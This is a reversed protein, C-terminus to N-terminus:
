WLETSSLINGAVKHFVFAAATNVIQWQENAALCIWDAVGRKQKCMWKLITIEHTTTRGSDFEIGAYVAGSVYICVAQFAM